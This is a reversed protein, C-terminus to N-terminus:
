PCSGGCPVPPPFSLSPLGTPLDLDGREEVTEENGEMSM